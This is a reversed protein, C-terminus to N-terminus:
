GPMGDALPTVGPLRRDSTIDLSGTISGSFRGASGGLSLVVGGAESSGSAPALFASSASRDARRSASFFSLSIWPCSSRSSSLSLDSISFSVALSASYSRLAWSASCRARRASTAALLPSVGACAFRRTPLVRSSSSASASSSSSDKLGWSPLPSPVGGGGSPFGRSCSRPPVSGVVGSLPSGNSSETLVFSPMEQHRAGGSLLCRHSDGCRGGRGVEAPEEGRLHRGGDEVFSSAHGDHLTEGAPDREAGVAHRDGDGGRLGGGAPHVLSAVL